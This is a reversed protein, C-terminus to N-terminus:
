AVLLCSKLLLTTEPEGAHRLCALARSDTMEVQPCLNLVSGEEHEQSLGPLVFLVQSTLCKLKQGSTVCPFCPFSEM